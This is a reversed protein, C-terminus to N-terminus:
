TSLLSRYSKSFAQPLPEEGEGEELEEFHLQLVQIM